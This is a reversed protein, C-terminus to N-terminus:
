QLLKSADAIFAAGERQIKCERTFHLRASDLSLLLKKDSCIKREGGGANQKFQQSIKRAIRM